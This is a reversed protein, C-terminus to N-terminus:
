KRVADLLVNGLVVCLLDSPEQKVCFLVLTMDVYEQKKGEIRPQSLAFQEGQRPIIYVIIFLKQPYVLASCAAALVHCHLDCRRFRRATVAFNREVIGNQFRQFFFFLPLLIIGLQQAIAVVFTVVENDVGNESLRIDVEACDIPLLAEIVGQFASLTLASTLGSVNMAATAGEGM